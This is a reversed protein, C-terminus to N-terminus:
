DQTLDMFEEDIEEIRPENNTDVSFIDDDRIVPDNEIDNEIENTLSDLGNINMNENEESLVEDREIPVPDLLSVRRFRGTRTNELLPSHLDTEQRFLQPNPPIDQFEFREPTKLEPVDTIFINNNDVRHFNLKKRCNPCNKKLKYWQDFCKKHFSHNCETEHINFPYGLNDMCISCKSKNFKKKEKETLFPVDLDKNCIPCFNYSLKPEFEIMSIFCKYHFLHNCTLSVYNSNIPIKGFCCLCTYYTDTSLM